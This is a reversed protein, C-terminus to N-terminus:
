SLSMHNTRTFATIFRRYGYFAIFKKVLQAGTLKEPLVTNWSALFSVNVRYAYYYYDSVFRKEAM